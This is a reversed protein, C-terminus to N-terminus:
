IFNAAQFLLYKAVSMKKIEPLGHLEHEFPFTHSYRDKLELYQRIKAKTQFANFGRFRFVKEATDVTLNGHTYIINLVEDDDVRNRIHVRDELGDLWKEMLPKIPKLGERVIEMYEQKYDDFLIMSMDRFIMLLRM